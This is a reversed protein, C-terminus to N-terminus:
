KIATTPTSILLDPASPCSLVVTMALLTTGHMPTTPPIMLPAKLPPWEEEQMSEEASASLTSETEFEPKAPAKPPAFTQPLDTREAVVAPKYNRIYNLYLDTGLGPPLPPPSRGFPLPSARVSDSVAM